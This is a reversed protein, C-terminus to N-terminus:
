AARALSRSREWAERVGGLSLAALLAERKELSVRALARFWPESKGGDHFREREKPSFGGGQCPPKGKGPWGEDPVRARLLEGLRAEADIRIGAAKAADTRSFSTDAATSTKQRVDM